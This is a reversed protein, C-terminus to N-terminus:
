GPRSGSRQYMEGSYVPKPADSGAGAVVRRLATEALGATTRMSLWALAGAIAGVLLLPGFIALSRGAAIESAIVAGVVAPGLYVYWRPVFRVAVRTGLGWPTVTGKVVLPARQLLWSQHTLTRLRFAHGDFQGAFRVEDSRGGLSGALEAWFGPADALHRHLRAGVTAVPDAVDFERRAM